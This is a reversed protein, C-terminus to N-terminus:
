DLFGVVCAGRGGHGGDEGMQPLVVRRDTEDDLGVRRLIVRPVGIEYDCLPPVFMEQPLHSRQNERDSPIPRYEV